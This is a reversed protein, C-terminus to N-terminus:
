QESAKLLHARERPRAGNEMASYSIHPEDSDAMQEGLIVAVREVLEQRSTARM